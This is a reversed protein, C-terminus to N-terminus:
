AATRPLSFLVGNRIVSGTAVLAALAARALTLDVNMVAAVAEATMPGRAAALRNFIARRVFDTRDPACSEKGPNM